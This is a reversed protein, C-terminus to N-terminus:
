QVNAKGLQEIATILWGSGGKRLDLRQRVALRTVRGRVAPEAGGLEPFRLELRWTCEVRARGTEGQGALVVQLEDHRAAAIEIPEAFFQQLEHQVRARLVAAAPDILELLNFTKRELFWRDLAGLLEGVERELMRTRAAALLARAEPDEPVLRVAAEAEALAREVQGQELATRAALLAQQLREATSRQAQLKERAQAAIRAAEEHRPALELLGEAVQLVQAYQGTGFERQLDAYLKRARALREGREALEPAGAPLNVEMERLTSEAADFQGRALQEDFRDRQLRLTQMRNQATSIDARVASYNAYSTPVRELVAVAEQWRRERMLRAGTNVLEEVEQKRRRAEALLPELGPFDPAIAAIAELQEVAREYRGDGLAREAAAFSRRLEETPQFSLDLTQLPPETGRPSVELARTLPEYGPRKFVLVYKGTEVPLDAWPLERQEIGQQLYVSVGAPLRARLVALPLVGQSATGGAAALSGSQGGGRSAAGGGQQAGWLGLRPGLLWLAGGALGLVLWAAVWRRAGGAAAPRAPGLAVTGTGAAATLPQTAGAQGTRDAVTEAQRFGEASMGAETAPGAATRDPQTAVAGGTVLPQRRAGGRLYYSVNRRFENLDLLLAKPNQYRESPKKALMRECIEALFPPVEPAVQRVPPPEEFAHKYILAAPTDAAFPLKGTLLEFFVVGLSYIDSRTDLPEGRAQEPSMYNPTGMILGSQTLNSVTGQTAKALGFDMVKVVENRDIMINSPKIDRHVIGKEHAVALANAVGAVIEVAQEFDLRGLRRLRESLDEGEVYEMAFYPTGQEVGISYIQIVNPHILNAAAKAERQFREIFNEQAALSRPLVKVAVRRDLSVQHALYVEGMGGQGIKKELIFDGLQRREGM